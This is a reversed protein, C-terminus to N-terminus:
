SVMPKNAGKNTTAPRSTCPNEAPTSTPPTLTYRASIAVGPWLPNKTLQCDALWCTATMNAATRPKIREMVIRGSCIAPHPHRM